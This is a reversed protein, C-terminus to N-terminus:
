YIESALSAIKNFGLEKIERAVPGFVRTGRPDYSAASTILVCANDDFRIYSGDRRKKEKRTRVIVAELKDGKKVSSYPDAVKVVVKIVDGIHAKKRNGKGPLGIMYAKRAGSNDAVTLVTRLQIM